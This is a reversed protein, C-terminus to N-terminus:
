WNRLQAILARARRLGQRRARQAIPLAQKGTRQAISLLQQQVGSGESSARRQPPDGGLETEAGTSGPANTPTADNVAQVADSREESM